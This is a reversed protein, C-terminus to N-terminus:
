DLRFNCKFTKHKIPYRERKFTQVVFIQNYTLSSFIYLLQILQFDRTKQELVKRSKNAQLM